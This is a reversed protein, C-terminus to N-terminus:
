RSAQTSTRAAAQDFWTFRFFVFPVYLAYYLQNPVARLLWGADLDLALILVDSAAWLAYYVAVYTLVGRLFALRRPRGEGVWRPVARQRLYLALAFFALEYILWLTQEPLPGALEQLAGDTAYAVLPVALTWLSADALHRRMPLATLALRRLLLFVRFDGLLVFLLLVATGRPTGAIGLWKSLLGTAFADLVTECAFVVCYWWVFREDPGGALLDRTLLLYALLAVPVPWVLYVGQLASAYFEAFM